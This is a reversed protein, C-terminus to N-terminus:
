DPELKSGFLSGFIEDLNFGETGVEVNGFPAGGTRTGGPGGPPFGAGGPPFGAGGAGVQDWMDGYQDYKKRKDEDSLVDYAQQIEKFKEESKKDGPNLDPHFKRALKRHAKKIEEGSATRAVGLTKYYDTSM